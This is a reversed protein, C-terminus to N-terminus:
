QLPRSGDLVFNMSQSGDLGFNMPQSGDLGIQMQVNEVNAMDIEAHGFLSRQISVIPTDGGDGEKHKGKGQSKKTKAKVKRMDKEMRSARRLSPPRDKGRVVNPSRVQGSGGVTATGGTSIPVNSGTQTMSSPEQNARYLEIMAYLKTKADQTHEKSGAALTIMQYCINLMESYRNSDARQEGADYSSHILTYRRKIDKRWRDLFYIDPLSTIENCRFVALIHRCLIERM